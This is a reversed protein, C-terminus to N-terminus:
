NITDWSTSIKEDCLYLEVTVRNYIIITKLKLNDRLFSRMVANKCSQSVKTNKDNNKM